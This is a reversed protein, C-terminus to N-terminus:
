NGVGVANLLVAWPRPTAACGPYISREIAVVGVPNSMCQSPHASTWGRQPQSATHSDIVWPASPSGPSHQEVANRDPSQGASSWIKRLRDGQCYRMKVVWGNTRVSADDAGSINKSFLMPTSYCRSYDVAQQTAVVFSGNAVFTKGTLPSSNQSQRDFMRASVVRNVHIYYAVADSNVSSIVWYYAHKM